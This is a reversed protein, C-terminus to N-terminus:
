YNVEVSEDNSNQEDDSAVCSNDEKQLVKAKTTRHSEEKKSPSQEVFLQLKLPASTFSKLPIIVPNPIVQNPADIPIWILSKVVEVKNKM